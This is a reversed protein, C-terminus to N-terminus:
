RLAPSSKADDPDMRVLNLVDDMTPNYKHTKKAAPKAAVQVRTPANEAPIADPAVNNKAGPTFCSLLSCIKKISM